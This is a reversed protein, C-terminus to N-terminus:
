LLRSRENVAIPNSHAYRQPDNSLMTRNLYIYNRSKASIMSIEIGKLLDEMREDNEAHSKVRIVYFMSEVINKASCTIGLTIRMRNALRDDFVEIGRRAIKVDTARDVKAYSYYFEQIKRKTKYSNM